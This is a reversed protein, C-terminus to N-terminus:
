VLVRGRVYTIGLSRTGNLYALIKRISKWLRATPSHAYRAVARVANTIDPRTM